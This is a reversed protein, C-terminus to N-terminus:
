TSLLRKSLKLRKSKAFSGDEYLGFICEPETEYNKTADEIEPNPDFFYGNEYIVWHKYRKDEPWRLYLLASGKVEKLFLHEKIYVGKHHSSFFKLLHKVTVNDTKYKCKYRDMRSRTIAYSRKIVNAVCAIGCGRNKSAQKIM